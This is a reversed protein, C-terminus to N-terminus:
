GDAYCAKLIAKLDDLAEESKDLKDYCQKRKEYLEVFKQRTEGERAKIADTLVEVIAQYQQPCIDNSFEQLFTAPKAAILQDKQDQTLQIGVLSTQTDSIEESEFDSESELKEEKKEEKM